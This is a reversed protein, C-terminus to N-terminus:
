HTTECAGGCGCGIGQSKLDDPHNRCSGGRFEGKKTFILRVSLALMAIILLVITVILLEINLMIYNKFNLLIVLILQLHECSIPM